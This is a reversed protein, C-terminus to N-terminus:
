WFRLMVKSPPRITDRNKVISLAAYLQGTSFCQMPWFWEAITLTQGQAKSTTTVFASGVPFQRQHFQCPLDLVCQDVQHLTHAGGHVCLM